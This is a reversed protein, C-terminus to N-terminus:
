DADNEPMRWESPDWWWYGESAFYPRNFFKRPAQRSIQDSKALAERLERWLEKNENPDAEHLKLFFHEVSYPSRKDADYRRVEDIADELIERDTATM